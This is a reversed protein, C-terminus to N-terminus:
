CGLSELFYLKIEEHAWAWRKDRDHPMQLPRLSSWGNHGPEGNVEPPLQQKRAKAREQSLPARPWEKGARGCAGGESFEATDHHSYISATYM